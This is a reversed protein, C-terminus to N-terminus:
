KCVNMVLVINVEIDVFNYKILMVDGVVFVDLESIWMYEDMKILGNLYLELIGKLWVINLCVGVVVVVLDVDYM